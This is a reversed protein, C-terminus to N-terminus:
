QWSYFYVLNYHSYWGCKPSNKRDKDDTTTAAPQKACILFSLRVYLFHRLSISSNSLRSPLIMHRSTHSSINVIYTAFGIPRTLHLFIMYTRRMSEHPFLFILLWKCLCVNADIINCRFFFYKKKMDRCTQWERCFWTCYSVQAHPWFVLYTIRDRKSKKRRRACYLFYKHLISIHYNFRM